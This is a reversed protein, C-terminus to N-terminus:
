EGPDPGPMSRATIHLSSCDLMDKLINCPVIMVIGFYPRHHSGVMNFKFERVFENALLDEDIGTCEGPLESEDAFM